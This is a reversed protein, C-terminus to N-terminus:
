ENGHTVENDSWLLDIEHEALLGSVAETADGRCHDYALDYVRAMARKFEGQSTTLRSNELRWDIGIYAAEIAAGKRTM